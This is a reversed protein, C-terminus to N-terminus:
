GKPPCSDRGFSNRERIRGDRGHIYVETRQNRAIATAHEIAAQQTPHTKTAREAGAKRVSWGGESPVVHQGPRSMTHEQTFAIYPVPWWGSLASLPRSKRAACASTSVAPGVPPVSAFGVFRELLSAKSAITTNRAITRPLPGQSGAASRGM